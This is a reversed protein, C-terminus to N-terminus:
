PTTDQELRRYAHLAAILRDLAEPTNPHYQCMIHAVGAEAFARFAGAMEEPSGTVYEGAFFAPIEALDPWGVKVLASAEIEAGSKGARDRAARFRDLAGAFTEITGCYGGNWIAGHRVAQAMMRPGFAGILLPPGAPRPGAPLLECDRAQYFTGSFDVRGGRLLPGIIALAEEFREVRHDYPVGFADFEARNWGAGIGLILRGNSVEDLTAAMKALIAPNRFQACLVLTGLEIRTTLAALAALMTWCEWIGEDPEGPERYLLHDFLWLSDFGTNELRRAVAAIAGFSPYVPGGEPPREVGLRVIAGIKM